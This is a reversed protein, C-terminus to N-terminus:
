SPPCAYFTQERFFEYYSAPPLCSFVCYVSSGRVESRKILSFLPSLSTRVCTYVGYIRLLSVHFMKVTSLLNENQFYLLSCVYHKNKDILNWVSSLFIFIRLVCLLETSRIEKYFLVLTFSKNEHLDYVEVGYM